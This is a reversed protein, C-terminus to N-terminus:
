NAELAIEQAIDNIVSDLWYHSLAAVMEQYGDGLLPETVQFTRVQNLERSPSIFQWRGSIHVQGELDAYFADLEINLRHVSDLPLSQNGYWTVDPLKAEFRQLALRTLQPSLPEAWLHYQARHVQGRASVLAIKNGLLFSAVAVPELQIAIKKTALSTQEAGQDFLLYEKTQPTPTSSCASLLVALVLWSMKSGVHSMVSTMKDIM